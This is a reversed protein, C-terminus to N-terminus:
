PRVAPAVVGIQRLQHLVTRVYRAPREITAAIERPTMGGRYLETVKARTTWPRVKPRAVKTHVCVTSQCVDYRHALVKIAEGAARETRMATIEDPSPRRWPKKM